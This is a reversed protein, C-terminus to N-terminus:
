QQPRNSPSFKPKYPRGKPQSIEIIQGKESLSLIVAEKSGEFFFPQILIHKQILKQAQEVNLHIHKYKKWLVFKCGNRWNSCGYGRRGEIIEKQCLPCKGFCSRNILSIDSSKILNKTFTIIEDMFKQPSLRGYEIEKLKAEWEGTLEASKLNPDQILAILYRGSNTITLKKKERTIYGRKLLTEIMAARTAPTGLGKEKLADKLQEDEVLRGATEMAGLLSSETFHKPPTTKGEKLFPSHPGRMGLTLDPLNQLDTNKKEQDKPYLSTWGPSLIRVGTAKFAVKNSLGEITTVEKLCPPYFAAILRTLIADFIQQSHLPLNKSQKGTPIIAHHDTVKKNNINRSTFPLQDLKLQAIEKEKVGQLNKLTKVIQHKMDSSLYKSDTRPYTILKNEYLSQAIKLTEAASLGYRKNMDRQLDTLDYLFPPLSKEKKAQIKEISFEKGETKNLLDQAKEKKDFRKGKFKFLVNCFRTHLEWFPTSIFNQIEDCRQSILSLIPTQVRGVSWLIGQAGYRISFSRTANLGVIWDSESRCRAAAYLTDFESSPHLNNFGKHLAEDTLSSLWLRKFSKKSCKSMTLIYRFILEGERGADTACIIEVSSCLLKQIISFQKRARKDSILKLEFTKPIFPLPNLTWKKLEPHYDQPEKLNVLHGFAWTVQYGKGEFYGDFKSKAGLFTAIDRAVSPKETVVVKM